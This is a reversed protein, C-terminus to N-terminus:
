AGAANALLRGAADLLAAFRAEVWQPWLALTGILVAFGLLTKLPVTLAMVPLQPSLKGALAVALEAMLTAAMVPASIQLAAAFIGAAMPVVALGSQARFVVAGVPAAAFTRFVAELVTRDLGAGLVTLLGLLNFLEGLLPTQVPANPDLLNVLSFSFQFGLIQGAFILAEFLLSLVLGLLLGISLESLVATTNLEIHARPFGAVVPALLWSVALAFAAKVRMPIADSSFFPAFVMAGSVRVLVLAMAALASELKQSGTELIAAPFGSAPSLVQLLAVAHRVLASAM